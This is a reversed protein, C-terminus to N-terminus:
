RDIYQERMTAISDQIDNITRGIANNQESAPRSPREPPRSGSIQEQSQEHSQEQSQEQVVEQEQHVQQEQHDQPQVEQQQQPQQQSPQHQQQQSDQNQNQQVDPSQQRLQERESLTRM